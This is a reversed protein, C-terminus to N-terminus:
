TVTKIEEWCRSKLATQLGSQGVFCGVTPLFVVAWHLTVQPCPSALVVESLTIWTFEWTNWAAVDWSLVCGSLSGERM